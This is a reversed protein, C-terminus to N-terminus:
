LNCSAVWHSLDRGRCHDRWPMWAGMGQWDMVVKKVCNIDDALDATLLDRGALHDQPAPTGAGREGPPPPATGRCRTQCLDLTRSRQDSCWRRSNIQFIGYDSSGDSNETVTGTNFRSAYFALCLWNDLRYGMFGDLGGRQLLRALECRSLVEGRAGASLCALVPLLALARM